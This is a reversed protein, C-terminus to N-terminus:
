TTQQQRGLVNSAIATYMKSRRERRSLEIQYDLELKKQDEAVSARALELLPISEWDSWSAITEWGTEESLHVARGLWTAHGLSSGNKIINEFSSPFSSETVKWCNNDRSFAIKRATKAQLIIDIEARDILLRYIGDPMDTYRPLEESSDSFRVEEPDTIFVPDTTHSTM